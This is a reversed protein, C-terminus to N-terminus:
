IWVTLQLINFHKSFEITWQKVTRGLSSEIHKIITDEIYNFALITIRYNAESSHSVIINKEDSIGFTEKLTKRFRDMKEFESEHNM